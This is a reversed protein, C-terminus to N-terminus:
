KKGKKRKKNIGMGWYASNKNDPDKDYVTIISFKEKKKMDSTKRMTCATCGCGPKHV